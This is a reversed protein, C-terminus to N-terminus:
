PTFGLEFHLLDNKWYYFFRRMNEECGDILTEM